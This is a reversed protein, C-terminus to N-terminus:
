PIANPVFDVILNCDVDLLVLNRGVVRYELEQPLSPLNLLLSPPTSQLPADAPYEHNVRLAKLRVPAANALSSRIRAAESGQMAIGILRRFEAAVAPTFMNGQAVGRREERVRHAFQHQYRGIAAPSNTPQLRHIESRVNKHLKVYDAIRRSFDKLVASDQNVADGAQLRAALL